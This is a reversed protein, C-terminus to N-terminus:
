DNQSPELVAGIVSGATEGDIEFELGKHCSLAERAHWLAAVLEAITDERDRVVQRLRRIENRNLRLQETETM